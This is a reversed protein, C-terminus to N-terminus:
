YSVKKKYSLHTHTHTNRTTHTHTGTSAWPQHQSGQEIVRGVKNKSASSSLKRQHDGMEAWQVSPNDVVAMWAWCICPHKPIM